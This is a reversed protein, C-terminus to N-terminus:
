VVSFFFLCFVFFLFFFFGFFWVVSLAPKLCLSAPITFLVVSDSSSLMMLLILFSLKVSFAILMVPLADGSPLVSRLVFSASARLLDAEFYRSAEMFLPLAFTLALPFPLASTCGVGSLSAGAMCRELLDTSKGPNRFSICTDSM